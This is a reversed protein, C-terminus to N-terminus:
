PLAECAIGDHDRDLDDVNNTPSGGQSDFYAQADAQTAFDSCDKDDETGCSVMSITLLFVMSLLCRKITNQLLDKRCFKLLASNELTKM